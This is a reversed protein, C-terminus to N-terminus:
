GELNKLHIILISMKDDYEYSNLCYPIRMHIEEMSHLFSLLIFFEQLLFSNDDVEKKRM